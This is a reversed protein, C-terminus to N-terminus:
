RMHSLTDTYVIFCRDVAKVRTHGQRRTWPWYLDQDHGVDPATGGQGTVDELLVGVREIHIFGQM